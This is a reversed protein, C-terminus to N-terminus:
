GRANHPLIGLQLLWNKLSFEHQRQSRANQRAVAAENRAHKRATSPPAPPGEASPPSAASPTQAAPTQVAAQHPQIQPSVKGPPVLARPLLATSVNAPASLSPEAGLGGTSAGRIEESRPLSADTPRVVTVQVPVPGSVGAMEEASGGVPQQGLSTASTSVRNEPSQKGMAAVPQPAKPLPQQDPSVASAQTDRLLEPRVVQAGAPAGPPRAANDDPNALMSYFAAGLTLPPLLLACAGVRIRAWNDRQAINARMARM